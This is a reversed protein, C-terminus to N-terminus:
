DRRYGDTKRLESPDANRRDADRRARIGNNIARDADEENERKNDERGQEYARGHLIWLVAGFAAGAAARWGFALHVAVVAAIAVAFWMWQPLNAFIWSM